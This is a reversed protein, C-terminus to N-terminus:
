WTCKYKDLSHDPGSFCIPYMLNIHVVDVKSEKNYAFIYILIVLQFTIV